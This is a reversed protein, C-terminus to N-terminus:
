VDVVPLLVSPSGESVDTSLVGLNWEPITVLTVVENPRGTATDLGFLFLKNPLWADTGLISLRIGGNSIVGARTFPVNVDLEYWNTTYQELDDQGTNGTQQQLVSIGNATVQLHIPNDTEINSGSHTYVLMLVRQIVTNSSGADVLRIPITLHGESKDTSLWRSVNTEMALGMIRSPLGELSPQTRGFVFVHEPAWADDGRIGLRISSNTLLMPEFPTALPGSDELGAEGDDLGDGGQGLAGWSLTFDKEFVDTGDLNVTLNFWEESGADAQDKTLVALWLLDVVPM